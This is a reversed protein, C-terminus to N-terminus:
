QKEDISILIKKSKDESINVAMNSAKMYNAKEYKNNELNVTNKNEDQMRSYRKTADFMNKQIDELTPNNKNCVAILSNQFKNNMGYWIFHQLVEDITIKLDRFDSIISKMEGIYSYPDTGINLKLNSLRQIIDHKATVECAFAEELLEKAKEYNQNETDLSDILNRPGDQLQAQLHIFLEYSSLPHKLM